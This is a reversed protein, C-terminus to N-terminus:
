EAFRCVRKELEDMLRQTKLILGGLQELIYLLYQNELEYRQVLAQFAFNEIVQIIFKLQQCELCLQKFFEASAPLKATAM